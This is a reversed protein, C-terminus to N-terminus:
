IKGMFEIVNELIPYVYIIGLTALFSLQFGVDWRLLLPNFLLMADASFLVANQSNALRGNKMAWILLIGMIGARVASSPLGVIVIFLIIGAVAFYFAQRRWLGLFIGLMMLYEAIITVNYGSVAVIHTMGTKSFNNQIEESLKKNGGILLGSLLGLEPAPVLRSINGDLKNRIKIIGTYIKNGQNKGLKEIKPKECKYNVGSKALYMRYDFDDSFNEPIRLTCDVRIRDGYNYKEYASAGILIKEKIMDTSVILNQTRGNKEPEKIIKGEGSFNKGNLNLNKIDNLKENILFIGLIFFLVAISAVAAIKNKYFVTLIILALIALFYVTEDSLIRPYLFSAVAAGGIFSLSFICFIRSKNM